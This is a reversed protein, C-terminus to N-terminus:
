ITWHEWCGVLQVTAGPFLSAISTLIVFRIYVVASYYCYYCCCCCCYCYSMIIILYLINQILLINIFIMLINLGCDVCEIIMM